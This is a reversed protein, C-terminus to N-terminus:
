ISKMLILYFNTPQIHHRLANTPDFPPGREAIAGGIAVLDRPSIPFSILHFDELM